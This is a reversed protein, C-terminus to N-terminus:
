KITPKLVAKGNKIVVDFDIERNGHKQRLQRETARLSRALGDVSVGKADKTQHKADVLRAHLERVKDDTVTSARAPGPKGAPPRARHPLPPRPPPAGPRAPPRAPRRGPPPIGPKTAPRKGPPAPPRPEGVGPETGLEARAAAPPRLPPRPRGPAPPRNKEGRAPGPTTAPRVAPSAAAKPKPAAGRPRSAATAPARKPKTPKAGGGLGDLDFDLSLKDLKKASQRKPERTSASPPASDVMTREQTPEDSGAFVDDLAKMADDLASAPSDLLAAMEKETEQKAEQARAREAAAADGKAFMGMRKRAAITMPEGMRREAKLLHRRYTGNEIERCIRQWYQQFTNYRMVITQLKFRKATNRFKMRRLAWIRRDVDKRAINPEIKELGLFYQEYLARLRELRVELEELEHDIDPEAAEM